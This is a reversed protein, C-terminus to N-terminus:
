LSLTMLGLDGHYIMTSNKLLDRGLLGQFGQAIFDSGIVPLADFAYNMTGRGPIPLQITIRADYVPMDVPTQGTSPTLVKTISTPSVGLQQIVSACLNTTTAGTDVLLRCAIDAPIPQGAQALAKRRAESLGVLVDILPGNAGIQFNLSPM